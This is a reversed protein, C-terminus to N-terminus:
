NKVTEPKVWESIAKRIVFSVSVGTEEAKKRAKRLLEPPVKVSVMAPRESKNVQKGEMGDIICQVLM